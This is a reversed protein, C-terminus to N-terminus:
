ASGWEGLPTDEVSRVRVGPMPARRAKAVRCPAAFGMRALREVVDASPARSGRELKEVLSLSIALSSALAAQTTGRERRWDALQRGYPATM